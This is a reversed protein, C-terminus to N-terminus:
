EKNSTTRRIADSIELSLSSLGISLGQVLASNSSNEPIVAYTSNKAYLIDMSTNSLKWRAQLLAQGNSDKEFHLLTLELQIGEVGHTDPYPYINNIGLNSSLNNILADSFMEQLNGAWRHQEEITIAYASQQKVLQGKDLFSAIVVPGVLINPLTQASSIEAQKSSEITYYFFPLKQRMCGALFLLSCILLFSYHARRTTKNM